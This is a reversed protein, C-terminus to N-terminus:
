GFELNLANLARTKQFSVPVWPDCISFVFLIGEALARLALDRNAADGFTGVGIQIWPGNKRVVGLRRRLGVHADSVSVRVVVPRGTSRDLVDDGPEDALAEPVLTDDFVRIYLEEGGWAFCLNLRGGFLCMARALAKGVTCSIVTGLCFEPDDDGFPEGHLSERPFSVSAVYLDAVPVGLLRQVTANESILEAVIDSLRKTEALPALADPFEGLFRVGLIPGCWGLYRGREGLKFRDEHLLFLPLMERRAAELWLRQGALVTRLGSCTRQARALDALSFFKLLSSRFANSGGKEIWALEIGTM